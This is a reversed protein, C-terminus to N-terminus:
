IGTGRFYKKAPCPWNPVDWKPAEQWDAHGDGYDVNGGKPGHNQPPDGPPPSAGNLDWALPASRIQTLKPGYEPEWFISYFEYSIRASNPLTYDATEIARPEPDDDSPCRFTAPSKLYDRNLAVLVANTADYDLPTLPPNTNPLRDKHANAYMLMAAGLERLHALCKTRNAQARAKSLVPLLVAILVAIIGIVVLLEVLTFGGRGRQRAARSSAHVM